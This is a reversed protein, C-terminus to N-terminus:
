NLCKARAQDWWSRLTNRCTNVMLNLLKFIHQTTLYMEGPCKSRYVFCMVYEHRYVGNRTTHYKKGEILFLSYRMTGEDIWTIHFSLFWFIRVNICEVMSNTELIGFIKVGISLTTISNTLFPEYYEKNRISPFFYSPSRM